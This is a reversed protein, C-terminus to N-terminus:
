RNMRAGAGAPLLQTLVVRKVGQNEILNGLKKPPPHNTIDFPEPFSCEHISCSNLLYAGKALAGV